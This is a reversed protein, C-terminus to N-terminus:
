LGVSEQLSAPERFRSLEKIGTKSVHKGAFIQDVGSAQALTVSRDLRRRTTSRTTRRPLTKPKSPGLFPEPLVVAIRKSKPKKFGVAPEAVM